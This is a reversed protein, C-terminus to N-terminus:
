EAAAEAVQRGAPLFLAACAVVRAFCSVVLFLAAVGGAGAPSDAATAGGPLVWGGDAQM